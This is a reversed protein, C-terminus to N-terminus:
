GTMFRKASSPNRSTAHVASGASEVGTVGEGEMQRNGTM